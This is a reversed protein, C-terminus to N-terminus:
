SKFAGDTCARSTASWEAFARLRPQATDDRSRRQRRRHHDQARGTEGTKPDVMPDVVAVRGKELRVGSRAPSSSSMSTIRTRGRHRASTRCSGIMPVSWAKTRMKRSAGQPNESMSVLGGVKRQM